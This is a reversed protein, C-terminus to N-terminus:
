TTEFNLINSERGGWRTTSKMIYPRYLLDEEPSGGGGGVLAVYNISSGKVLFWKQFVVYYYKSKCHLNGSYRNSGLLNQLFVLFYASVFFHSIIMDEFPYSGLQLITYIVLYINLIFITYIGEAM